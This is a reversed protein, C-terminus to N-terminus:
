ENIEHAFTIDLNYGDALSSKTQYMAKDAKKILEQMDIDDEPFFAAGISAGVSVLEHYQSLQYPQKISNLLKKVIARVREQNVEKLIIVFEDGGWRCPLDDQRVNQKLIKAVNILIEDGCDHGHIDNIEKFGNLDMLIVAFSVKNYILNQIHKETAHRNLLQTMQDYNARKNLKDLERKRKSIDHLTIQYYEKMDDSVISSIVVQVWMLRDSQKSILQFEGTFIEDNAFAYKVKKLLTDPDTFLEQLLAGFNKKIQTNLKKLLGTFAQNYLLISGRPEMLIIPSQSSEFLMRFRKEIIELEDKLEQQASIQLQTNNLLNNIDRVLDGLESKNHFDPIFLRTDTGPTTKHLSRSIYVMPQTILVYSIFIAIFTAIAAQAILAKANDRGIEKARLKIHRPDPIISLHGIIRNKEFPSHLPFTIPNEQITIKTSIVEGEFEIIAGHVVGNTALGDVVEQVLEHDLLYAAITATASVTKHLESIQEKSNEVEHLYTLRYFLQSSIFGVALSSFVMVVALRVLLSSKNM